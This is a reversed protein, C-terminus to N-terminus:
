LDKAMVTKRNNGEAREVAADLIEEVKASLTEVLDGATNYGKGSILEKVKSQVVLNDAM